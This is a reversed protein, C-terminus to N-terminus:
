LLADLMMFVNEAENEQIILFPCGKLTNNMLIPSQSADGRINYIFSYIFLYILSVAFKNWWQSFILEINLWSYYDLRRYISYITRKMRSYM